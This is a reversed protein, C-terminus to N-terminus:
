AFVGYVFSQSIERIFILPSSCRSRRLSLSPKKISRMDPVPLKNRGLVGYLNRRLHLKCVRFLIRNFGYKPPPMFNVIFNHFLSRRHMRIAAETFFLSTKAMSTSWFQAFPFALNRQDYLMLEQLEDEKACFYSKGKKINREM